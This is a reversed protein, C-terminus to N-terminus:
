LKEIYKKIKGRDSYKDMLKNFEHHTIINDNSWNIAYSARLEKPLATKTLSLRELSTPLNVIQELLYNECTLVYVSNPIRPLSRISCYEGLHIVGLGPPLYRIESINAGKRELSIDLIYNNPEGDVYDWINHKDIIM